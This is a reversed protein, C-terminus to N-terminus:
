TTPMVSSPLHFTMSTSSLVRRLKIALIDGCYSGARGRRGAAPRAAALWGAVRAGILDRPAGHGVDMVEGVCEHGIAQPESLVIEGIRGERYLHMDSGCIGMKSIRVLAEGPGPKPPEVDEIEFTRPAILAIRKM